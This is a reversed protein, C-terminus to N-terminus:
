TLTRLATIRLSTLQRVTGEGGKGRLAELVGGPIELAAGLTQPDGIVRMTYPPRLLTHDVQVGAPDDVFATGAVVRVDGFQIAEAGADRLEQVTELIDTATVTAKPDAINLEIGPGTAPATGALVELVELQEQAAQRAAPSHDTASRLGALTQELTAVQADLRASQQTVNDLVTILDSQRLSALGQVQQQRAQVVVAFALVACVAAAVLKSRTLAPRLARRLRARAADSPDPGVDPVPGAVPGTEAPTEPTAVPVPIPIAPPVVDDDAPADTGAPLDVEDPEDDDEDTDDEDEADEDVDDLPEDEDDLPEDEDDLPEEEDDDEDPEAEQDDVSSDEVTEDATEDVCADDTTEDTTEDPTEDPPADVDPAPADRPDQVGM